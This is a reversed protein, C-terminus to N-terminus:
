FYRFINHSVKKSCYYLVDIIKQGIFFAVFPKFISWRPSFLVKLFHLKALLSTCVVFIDRVRGCYFTCFFFALLHSNLSLSQM